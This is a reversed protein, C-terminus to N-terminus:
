VFVCILKACAGRMYTQLQEDYSTGNSSYTVGCAWDNDGNYKTLGQAASFETDDSGYWSQSYTCKYYNEQMSNSCINQENPEETHNQNHILRVTISNAIETAM